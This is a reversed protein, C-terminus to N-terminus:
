SRGNQKGWERLAPRISYSNLEARHFDALSTYAEFKASTHTVSSIHSDSTRSHASNNYRFSLRLSLMPMAKNGLNNRVSIPNSTLYPSESFANASSSPSEVDVPLPVLREM